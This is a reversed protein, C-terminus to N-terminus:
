LRPELKFIVQSLDEVFREICNVAKLSEDSDILIDNYDETKGNRHIINHRVGVVKMVESIDITLPTKGVITEIVGIIDAVRHYSLQSLKSLVEGKVGGKFSYAEKLSIKKKFQVEDIDLANELYKGGFSVLSRVTDGLFAEMLTVAYAFAMKNMLDKSQTDLLSISLLAYLGQIEKAFHEHQSTYNHTEHWEPENRWDDYQQLEDMGNFDAWENAYHEWEDHSEDAEPDGIQNQVYEACSKELSELYEQKLIGM